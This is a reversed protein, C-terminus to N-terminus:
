KRRVYEKEEREKRRKDRNKKKNKVSRQDKEEEEEQQKTEDKKRRTETIAAWTTHDRRFGETIAVFSILKSVPRTLVVVSTLSLLTPFPVPRLTPLRPPPPLILLRKCHLLWDPNGRQMAGPCM